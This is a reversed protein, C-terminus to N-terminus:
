LNEAKDFIANIQEQTYTELKTGSYYHALIEDYTKGSLAMADAGYQSMGVRHGSGKVKIHVTGDAIEMTFATSPLSLMTRVDTGRFLADGIRITDVGGGDTYSIEVHIDSLNALGSLGLRAVFTEVPLSILTEYRASAEEGPSDVSQLYPVNTGWVAVADETKGGSCSFYTAEILNGNYTVVQGTTEMVAQRIKEICEASGNYESAHTFAQCCTADTCVDADPHKGGHVVKRLTYTRSAVAQAKLAELEFEAPMEGLVVGTIYTDLDMDRIHNGDKVRIDVNKVEQTDSKLMPNGSDSSSNEFAAFLLHPFVIVLLFVLLLMQKKM